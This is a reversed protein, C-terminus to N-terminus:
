RFKQKQKNECNITTERGQPLWPQDWVTIDCKETKSGQLTDCSHAPKKDTKLCDSLAINVSIKYKMGSVVQKSASIIELVKYKNSHTSSGDLLTMTNHALEVITPDDKEADFPAGPIQRKHRFLLKNILLKFM